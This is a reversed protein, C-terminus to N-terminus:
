VISLGQPDSCPLLIAVSFLIFKSQYLFLVFAFFDILIDILVLTTFITLLISLSLELNKLSFLSALMISYPPLILKIKSVTLSSSIIFCETSINNM